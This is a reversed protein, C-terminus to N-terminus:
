ATRRGEDPQGHLRDHILRALEPGIGRTEAIADPDAARLRSLSGFRKLLARKRAPGVGPLDDMISETM